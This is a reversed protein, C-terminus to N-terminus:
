GSQCLTALQSTSSGGDVPLVPCLLVYASSLLMEKLNQLNTKVGPHCIGTLWKIASPRKNHVVTVMHLQVAPQQVVHLADLVDGDLVGM